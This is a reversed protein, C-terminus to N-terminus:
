REGDTFSCLFSLLQLLSALDSTDRVGCAACWGVTGHLRTTYGLGFGLQTDGEGERWPKTSVQYAQNGGRTTFGFDEKLDLLVKHILGCCDLFLPANHHPASM